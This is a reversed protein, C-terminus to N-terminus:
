ATAGTAWCLGGLLHRRFAPAGYAEDAYGLSTSFSRGAGAERSTEVTFGEEEGPERLTTRAAPISAHRYATTRTHVLVDSLHGTLPM